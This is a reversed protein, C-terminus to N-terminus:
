PSPVPFGYKAMVKKEAVNLQTCFQPYYIQTSFGTILEKLYAELDLGYLPDNIVDQDEANLGSEEDFFYDEAAIGGGRVPSNEKNEDNNESGSEDEDEDGSELDDTQEMASYGLEAILLKFIKVLLPIETWREQQKKSRTVVGTGGPVAILDGKVQINTLRQDEMSVGHLLLKSLAVYTVKRDFQGYFMQQRFVWETMVFHLASQGTPGPVSDLFNLAAEMQSNFLHAYVMILSQIVSLTDASRLKSLVARLLLELQDGLGDGAKCILTTILKGVLTASFESTHPDLLRCAVQVIYALGSVGNADRNEYVQAPSVAVYARLCEGGNQLVTHDDSNMVCSIVAPFAGNMLIPNLPATSARLIVALLDLGVGQPGGMDESRSNLVSVITPTFREQVETVCKPNECLAKIIDEIIPCIVPDANFRVFCAMSLTTMKSGVLATLNEDLHLISELCELALALIEVSSGTTGFTVLCEIVSPLVLLLVKRLNENEKSHTVFNSIAKIALIKLIINKDPHLCEASARVFNEALQPQIMNCFISGLVLCRGVLLVDTSSLGPIVVNQVFGHIDFNVGSLTLSSPRSVRPGLSSVAFLCAEQVRWDNSTSLHKNVAQGLAAMSEKEFEDCVLTLLDQACTRLTYAVSDEDEDTVFIAPSTNWTEVREQPVQMYFITFYILDPLTNQLMSKSVSPTEVLTQVLEFIAYIVGEIGCAEGDSDVDPDDDEAGLYIERFQQTSSTLINWAPQLLHDLYPVMKKQFHRILISISKVVDKKLVYIPNTSSDSLVEVFAKMYEPLIPDLLQASIQKNGQSLNAIMRVCTRFIQAARARTYMTYRDGQRIINCMAPLIRPAFHVMHEDSFEKAFETMVRMAGQVGQELQLLKMLSDFLSPWQEPWDWHAISSIIAAVSNRIKSEHYTLGVPAMERLAAKVQENPEPPVFKEAISTWHTDVYQRLVVSALQRIPPQLVSDGTALVIEMLILPYQETVELAKLREEAAKRVGAEPSLSGLLTEILAEKVSASM